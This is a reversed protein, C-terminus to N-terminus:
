LLPVLSSRLVSYLLMGSDALVQWGQPSQTGQEESSRDLGQPGHMTELCLQEFGKKAERM